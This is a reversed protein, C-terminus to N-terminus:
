AATAARTAYPLLVLILVAAVSVMAITRAAVFVVPRLPQQMALLRRFPDRHKSEQILIEFPGTPLVDNADQLAIISRM